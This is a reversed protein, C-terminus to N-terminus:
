PKLEPVCGQNQAQLTMIISQETAMNIIIGKLKIGDKFLQCKIPEFM